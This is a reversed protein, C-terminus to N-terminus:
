DNNLKTCILSPRLATGIVSVSFISQALFSDGCCSLSRSIPLTKSSVFMSFFTMNHMVIVIEFILVQIFYELLIWSHIQKEAKFHRIALYYLFEIVIIKKLHIREWFYWEIEPGEM